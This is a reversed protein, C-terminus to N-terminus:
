FMFSLHPFITCANSSGHGSGEDSKIVDVVTFDPLSVGSIEISDVCRFRSIGSM